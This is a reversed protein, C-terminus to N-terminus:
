TNQRRHWCLWKSGCTGARFTVMVVLKVDCVGGILLRQHLNEVEM